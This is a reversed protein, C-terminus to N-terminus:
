GIKNLLISRTLASVQWGNPQLLVNAESIRQVFHRRGITLFVTSLVDLHKDQSALKWTDEIGFGYKFVFIM